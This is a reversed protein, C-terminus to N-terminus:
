LISEIYLMPINQTQQGKDKPSIGQGRGAIGLGATQAVSDFTCNGVDLVELQMWPLSAFWLVLWHVYMLSQGNLYICVGCKKLTQLLPIDM